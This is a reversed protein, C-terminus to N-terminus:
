VELLEEFGFNLNQALTLSSNFLIVQIFVHGMVVMIIGSHFPESYMLHGCGSFWISHLFLGFQLKKTPKIHVTLFSLIYWVDQLGTIECM